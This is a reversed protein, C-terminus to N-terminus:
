LARQTVRGRRAHGQAACQAREPAPLPAGRCTGLPRGTRPDWLWLSSDMGGTALVAADPSWAVCLVWGSHGQALGEYINVQSIKWGAV